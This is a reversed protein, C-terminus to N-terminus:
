DLDYEGNAIAQQAAEHEAFTVSFIHSGDPKAVFYMYDTEAPFFAAELADHGPSCIPGPPLGDILYTNYPSDVAIDEYTLVPKVEGLAYQVTACSQLKMNTALRNYFVGSIIPRDAEVEAEREIISAMTVVEFLSRDLVELQALWEDTLQKDFEALMIKVVDAAASDADFFYTEPYLFGQLREETGKAPLYDYDYDGNQCADMFAAASVVGNEELRAAIQATTYGEPITVKVGAPASGTVLEDVVQGVTYSGNFSYSGAKLDGGADNLRLYLKFVFENKIVGNDALIAGIQTSTSGEPIEVSVDAVDVSSNLQWLPIAVAAAAIVVVIVLAIILAKKM